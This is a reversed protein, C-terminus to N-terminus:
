HFDNLISTTLVYQRQQGFQRSVFGVDFLLSSQPSPTLLAPSRAIAPTSAASKLRQDPHMYNFASLPPAAINGTLGHGTQMRGALLQRQSM